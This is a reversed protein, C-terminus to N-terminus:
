RALLFEKFDKYEKSIKVSKKEKNMSLKLSEPLPIGKGIVAEVEDKFKAPHATELSVFLPQGKMSNRNMASYKRIGKWAIAGHPELLLNYKRYAEKITNRTEEDTVSVAFLDERMKALDPATIINGAEDM